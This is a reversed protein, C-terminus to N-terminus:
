KVDGRVEIAKQMVKGTFATGLLTAVMMVEDPGKSLALYCASLCCVFSMVRVLSVNNSNSLMDTFFRKM